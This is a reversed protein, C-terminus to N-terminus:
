LHDHKDKAAQKKIEDYENKRQIAYSVRAMWKPDNRIAQIVDEKQIKATNGEKRNNKDQVHTILKDLFFLMYEELVRITEAKPKRADGFAFLLKALDESFNDRQKRRMAQPTGDFDDEM